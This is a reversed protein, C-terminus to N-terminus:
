KPPVNVTLETFLDYARFYSADNKDYLYDHM